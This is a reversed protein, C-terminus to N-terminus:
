YLEDNKIQEELDFGIIYNEINDEDIYLDMITRNGYDNISFQEARGLTVIKGDKTKYDVIAYFSIPAGAPERGYYLEHKYFPVNKILKGNKLFKNYKRIEEDIKDMKVICLIFLTIFPVFLITFLIYRHIKFSIIISPLLFLCLLVIGFVYVLKDGLLKNRRGM